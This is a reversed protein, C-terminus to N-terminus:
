SDANREAEAKDYSQALRECAAVVKDKDRFVSIPPFSAIMERGYKKDILRTDLIAVVGKDSKRRILRGLGQTLMVNADSVFVDNFGDRGQDDAYERRAEFLPDNMPRFPIKDIIVLSSTSGSVDLGHWLGMTAVLVSHEDDRYREVLQSNPMDGQALVTNNPLKKRLYESIDRVGYSTTTLVMARGNMAKILEFSYAKVAEGHERRDQGVPAPFNSDPIFLMAQKKFDFPSPLAFTKINPVTDFGLNHMPIEFSGAVRITASTGVMTMNKERLQAQLKPGIRLPAAQLQKIPNEKNGTESIWKVIENSDTMLSDVAEIVNDLKKRVTMLDGKTEDNGKKDGMKQGIAASAKSAHVRLDSLLQKLSGQPTGIRGRDVADLAKKLTDAIKNLALSVSFEDNPLGVMDEVKKLSRSADQILSITLTAGWADTVYKDFEHIEDVILIEREGLTSTESIMDHAVMAHNTIVIDADKAKERAYEAYCASGFPCLNKGVCESSNSSYQRWVKDSISEPAEARDGTDTKAAWSKLYRMEVAIKNADTKSSKVSSGPEEYESDLRSSEAEKYLCYYNDRGKLLAANFHKVPSDTDQLAKKLFPVDKNILQESLQKTATSVICKAGSVIAPILYAVSNHTPILTEGALFLHSPSDVTICRVPVSPTDNVKVIKYVTKEHMNKNFFNTPIVHEDHITQKIAETTLVTVSYENIEQADSPISIGSRMARTSTVWLHEADAIITSGDDFVVEYCTKNHMIDYAHTIVTPEFNEDYVKQGVTLQGMTTWGESTLIPTDVHLAKGTGTPAEVLVHTGSAISKAFASTAQLQEPRAEAGELQATIQETVLAALEGAEKVKQQFEENKNLPKDSEIEEDIATEPENTNEDVTDMM